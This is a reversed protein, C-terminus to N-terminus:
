NDSYYVYKGGLGIIERELWEVTLNDAEREAKCTAIDAM